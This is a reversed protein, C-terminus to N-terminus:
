PLPTNALIAGDVWSMTGFSVSPVRQLVLNLRAV